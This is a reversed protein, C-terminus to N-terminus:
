YLRQIYLLITWFDFIKSAKEEHPERDWFYCSEFIELWWELCVM